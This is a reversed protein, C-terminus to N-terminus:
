GSRNINGLIDHTKYPRSVLGMVRPVICSYTPRIHSVICNPLTSTLSSVVEAIIDFFRSCQELSKKFFDLVSNYVRQHYQIKDLVLMDM